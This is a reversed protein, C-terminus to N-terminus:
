IKLGSTIQKLTEASARFARREPEDLHIHIHESIGNRNLIVPTSLCVDSVGYDDDMLSSVTLVSNEDRLISGVIRVLSLSVGFNTYGKREIIDYAANKVQQFLDEREESPCHRKCVPCYDKLPVGAINAQSWVAVESDGHEGIIYAHVNRPDVGCHRSLLFRFRATDLTTGSGIVRSTPFGSAKLAVYTLIDVPNSVILIIGPDQEAIKPIMGKFMETNKHVLDRRTEGEKQAAGATVLVIDADKCDEYQGAFIRAPSAFPLGHNLDMAHGEAREVNRDILVMTSAMGSMTLAFCFTAGVYGAGVVVVKRLSFLEKEAIM